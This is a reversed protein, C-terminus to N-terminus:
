WCVCGAEVSVAVRIMCVVASFRNHLSFTFFPDCLVDCYSTAMSDTAISTAHAWDNQTLRLQLPLVLVEHITNWTFATFVNWPCESPFCSSSTVFVCTRDTLEHIHHAGCCWCVFICDSRAGPVQRPSLVNVNNIIRCCNLNWGIEPEAYTVCLMWTSRWICNMTSLKCFCCTNAIEVCARWCSPSSCKPM